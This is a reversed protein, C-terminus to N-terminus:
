QNLWLWICAQVAVLVAVLLWSTAEHLRLNRPQVPAFDFRLKVAGVELVDGRRLRVRQVREGNVVLLADPEAVAFFGEAPDFEIRAHQHWVGEAELRVEANASRGIRLPFREAVFREEGGRGSLRELLVKM